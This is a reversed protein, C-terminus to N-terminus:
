KIRQVILKKEKTFNHENKKGIFWSVRKEKEKENQM